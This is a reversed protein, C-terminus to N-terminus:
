KIWISLPADFNVVRVANAHGIAIGVSNLDLSKMLTGDWVGYLVEIEPIFNSLYEKLNGTISTEFRDWIQVLCDRPVGIGGFNKIYSEKDRTPPRVLDTDLGVREVVHPINVSIEPVFLAQLEELTVGVGLAGPYNVRLIHDLTAEGISISGCSQAAIHWFSAQESSARGALPLLVDEVYKILSARSAVGNQVTYKLIYCLSLTAFEADTLKAAREAADNLTLAERSAERVLSRRAIIDILTEKVDPDGNRAYADQAKGLMYQFDPEKFAEPNGRGPKSFEQVLEERFNALREDVKTQAETTYVVLQHFVQSMIEVMQDGTLGITVDGGAQIAQGQDSVSQRLQKNEM